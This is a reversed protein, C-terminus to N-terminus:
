EFWWVHETWHDVKNKRADTKHFLDLLHEALTHTDGSFFRSPFNCKKRQFGSLTM